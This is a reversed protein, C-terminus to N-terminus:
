GGVVRPVRFVGADPAGDPANALADAVDLSPRVQDPRSATATERVHATVSVGDTPVDALQGVYDLIRDLDVALRERQDATLRLRALTAVREIQDPSVHSVGPM